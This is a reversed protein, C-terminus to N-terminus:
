VCMKGARSAAAYVGCSIERVIPNVTARLKEESLFKKADETSLGHQKASLEIIKERMQREVMEMLPAPLMGFAVLAEEGKECIIQYIGDAIAATNINLGNTNM